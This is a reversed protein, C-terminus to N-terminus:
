RVAPFALRGAKFVLHTHPVGFHYVLDNHGPVDLVLVDAKKGPSLSGIENELDLAAAALRTTGLFVERPSLGNYLCAMNMMLPLNETHCSGPNFDTSVALRCGAKSLKRGDAFDKRGLFYTAGPLLVGIVKSNALKEADHQNAKELHDISVAALEIALDVSGTHHLQEGHIKAKLGHTLGATLVQRAEDISYAGEDCFVDCFLALGEEAVQPIMEEILLQIYAQRKDKYEKPVVHAGLFTGVVDV